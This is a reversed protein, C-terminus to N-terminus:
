RHLGLEEEFAVLEFEDMYGIRDPDQLYRGLNEQRAMEREFAEVERRDSDESSDDSAYVIPGVEQDELRLNRRVAEAGQIPLLLEPFRYRVSGKATEEVEGDFEATLRQLQDQFGRDWGLEPPLNAKEPAARDGRRGSSSPLALTRAREMVGKPTVWEPGRGALSAQFVHALLVKRLNREQRRRNRRKVGWLRLLPIAFFLASFIAPIWVLGVWALLGGLGLEPFIFLPATLAAVLNFANMGGIIANSGATNGTWSEAPELRRWAPDPEREKVKGDASVMLQPFIYVLSGRPTVRVDGQYSAMLRAMEEEAEHLPLGTHQVLETATLVGRRARILRVVSRDRQRQTPRPVDPGFVFAFVRKIFPIKERERGRTKGYRQEWRHGYYPRRWGWGPSWFFYWFWFSSFGGGPRGLGGRRGLGFDRGRGRGGGRSQSAVVAAILLAVFVVFYVVLMLVIWVKFAERFAAWSWATLRQFPSEANRHLLKPDFRYVLTGSEGVEMHGRRNELLAKLTSEAEHTPLGTSSVVDGLTVRGRAKRLTQLVPETPMTDSSLAIEANM